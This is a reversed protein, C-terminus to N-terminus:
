MSVREIERISGVSYHSTFPIKHGNATYPDNMIYSGGSGSVLVVFHDPLPGADYSVGVIVPNGNSLESDIAASIRTASVGDAYVTKNLFAPYYSAFNQPNANILAPTVNKHGFHTMVMAVSTLLCGSDALTYGTGNLSQGGWQSDRQNYYCGWDDCVTQGGLLGAGGQSAVFRGFAALQAQAQSLLRQYTAEDSNTEALLKQKQQKQAVLSDQQQVLLKSLENLQTEKNERIKQQDQFNLKTEQVQLLLKENNDQATKNYKFKSILDNASGSDLLLDFMTVNQRKYSVVARKLLLKSLYDLSTDLGQIRTTILEIEKKIDIIKQQTDKIKLDTLYMQTDMYQIESALTNKQQRLSSLKEQYEQIKQQLDKKAQDEDASVYSVYTLSFTLVIFFLLLKKLM